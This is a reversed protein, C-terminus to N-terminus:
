LDAFESYIIRSLSAMNSVTKSDKFRASAWHVFETRDFGLGVDKELKLYASDALTVAIVEVDDIANANGWLRALANVSSHFMLIFDPYRMEDSGTTKFLDFMMGLRTPWNADALLIFCCIIEHAYCVNADGFCNWILDALGRPTNPVVELFSLLERMPMVASFSGKLFEESIASACSASLRLGDKDLEDPKGTSDSTSFTVGM